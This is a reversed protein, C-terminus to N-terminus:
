AHGLTRGEQYLRLLEAGDRELIYSKGDCVIEQGCLINPKRRCLEQMIEKCLEPKKETDTFLGVRKIGKDAKTLVVMCWTDTSDSFAVAIIDELRRVYPEMGNVVMYNETLFCAINHDPIILTTSAAALERDLQRLEGESYGTQEQYYSLWSNTRKSKMVIGFVVLLIGPITFLISVVANEGAALDMLAGPLTFVLLIIGAAILGKGAGVKGRLAQLISGKGKKMLDQYLKNETSAIM